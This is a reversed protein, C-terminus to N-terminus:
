EKQQKGNDRKEIMRHCFEIHERLERERKEAAALDRQLCNILIAKDNVDNHLRENEERLATLEAEMQQIRASQETIISLNSKM